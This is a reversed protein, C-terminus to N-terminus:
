DQLVVSKAMRETDRTREAGTEAPPPTRVNSANGVSSDMDDDGSDYGFRYGCDSDSDSDSDLQAHIRSPPPLKAPVLV